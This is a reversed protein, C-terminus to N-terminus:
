ADVRWVDVTPNPWGSCSERWLDLKSGTIAGGRDVVTGSGLGELELRTGFAISKPAAISGPGVPAGSATAKGRYFTPPGYCTVRFRGLFTRGAAPPPSSSPTPAPPLSPPPSTAPRSRSARETTSTTRPLEEVIPPILSTETTSTTVENGSSSADARDISEGLVEARGRIGQELRVEVGDDDASCSDVYFIVLVVALLGLLLLAPDPRRPARM